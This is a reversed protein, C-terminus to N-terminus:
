QRQCVHAQDDYVLTVMSCLALHIVVDHHAVQCLLVLVQLQHLVPLLRHWQRLNQTQSGRQANARGCLQDFGFLVYQTYISRKARKACQKNRHSIDRSLQDYM